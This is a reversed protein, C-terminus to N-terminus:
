SQAPGHWRADYDIVTFFVYDFQAVRFLCMPRVVRNGALRLPDADFRGIVRGIMFGAGEHTVVLKDGDALFGRALIPSHQDCRCAVMIIMPSIQVRAQANQLTLVPIGSGSSVSSGLRTASATARSPRRCTTIVETSLSSRASPPAACKAATILAMRAAAGSVVM